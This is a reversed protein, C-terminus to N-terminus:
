PIQSGLHPVNGLIGFGARRPQSTSDVILIMVRLKTSFCAFYNRLLTHMRFLNLVHAHTRLDQPEDEDEEQRNQDLGAERPMGLGIDSSAALEDAHQLKWAAQRKLLQEKRGEQSLQGVWLKNAFYMAEPPHLAWFIGSVDKGAQKLLPM